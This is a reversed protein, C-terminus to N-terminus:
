KTVLIIYCDNKNTVQSVGKCKKNANCANIAAADTKYKRKFHKTFVRGKRVSYLVGSKDVAHGFKLYSVKGSNEKNLKTSANLKYNNKGYRTFGKCKKSKVCKASANDINKIQKGYPKSLSYPQRVLFM